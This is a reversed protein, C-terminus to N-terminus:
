EAKRQAMWMGLARGEVRMRGKAADGDIWGEM